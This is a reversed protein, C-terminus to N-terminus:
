ELYGGRGFTGFNGAIGEGYNKRGRADMTTKGAEYSQNTGDSQPPTQTM